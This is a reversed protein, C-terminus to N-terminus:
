ISVVTIDGDVTESTLVDEPDVAVDDPPTVPVSDDLMTDITVVEVSPFAAHIAGRVGDLYLGDGLPTSTGGIPITAFYATIAANVQAATPVPSAAYVTLEFAFPHETAAIVSATVGLPVAKTQIEDDVATVTGGPPAGDADALYVTVTGLTSNATTKVRTIGLNIGNADVASLAVYEYARPSGNPSLAGLKALCRVKLAADSEEDAGVLAAANSVTVGAITSVLTTIEGANASGISGAVDCAIEIDLTSSAPLTGGTTNTYAASGDDKAVHVTGASIVIPSATTNTLTLTGTAFTASVRTVGYVSEALASLWSGSAFLLFGSGVALERIADQNELMQALLELITRVVSGPQWAEVPLELAEAIDLETALFEEKTLPTLLEDLTTM